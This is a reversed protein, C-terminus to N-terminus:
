AAEHHDTATADPEDWAEPPIGLRKRILLRTTARPLNKGNELRNVTVQDVGLVRALDAQSLGLAQRRSRMEERATTGKM